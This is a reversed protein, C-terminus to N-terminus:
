LSQELEGAEQRLSDLETAVNKALGDDAPDGHLADLVEAARNGIDAGRSASRQLGSETPTEVLTEAADSSQKSLEATRIEVFDAPARNQAAQQAVLMGEATSSQLTKLETSVSDKDLKGCGTASIAVAAALLLLAVRARVLPRDRCM